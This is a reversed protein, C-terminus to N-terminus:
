ISPNNNLDAPNATAPKNPTSAKLAIPGLNTLAATATIHFKRATDYASANRTVQVDYYFDQYTNAALSPIQLTASDASKLNIYANSSDWFFSSQVNYLTESATSTNTVRVGSLYADPG